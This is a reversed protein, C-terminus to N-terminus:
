GRGLRVKIYRGKGSGAPSEEATVQARLQTRLTMLEAVDIREISRDGITMMKQGDTARGEITAEVADLTRRAWSRHDRTGTAAMNSEVEVWGEAGAITEIITGDTAKAVWRYRGPPIDKSTTATITLAHSIGTGVAAQSFQKTENEFYYTVAWTPASYDSFDHTVRWTDGANLKSPVTDFIM